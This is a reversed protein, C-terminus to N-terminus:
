VELSVGHDSQKDTSVRLYAVTRTRASATAVMVVIM